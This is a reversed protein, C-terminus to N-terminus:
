RLQLYFLYIILYWFFLDVILVDEIKCINSWMCELPVTGFIIGGIENHWGVVNSPFTPPTTPSASGEWWYELVNQQQSVFPLLPATWCFPMWCPLAHSAFTHWQIGRHPFFPVQQCGSFSASCKHLGFTPHSHVPSTPPTNWCHCSLTVVALASLYSHLICTRTWWQCFHVSVLLSWQCATNQLQSNERLYCGQAPEIQQIKWPFVYSANSESCGVCICLWSGTVLNPRSKMQQYSFGELTLFPRPTWPDNDSIQSM